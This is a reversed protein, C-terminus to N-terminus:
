GTFSMTNDPYTLHLKIDKGPQCGQKLLSDSVTKLALDPHNNQQSLHALFVQMQEKRPIRALVAAADHNSLHGYQGMIRQKLFGPYPGNKLMDRDHNSELVALDANALAKLVNETIVGMDTAIVWKKHRYHFSFGVPDAADHSISHAEVEVGGVQFEEEITICCEPPLKHRCPIAEWTAARAFVPLRYRRILVDLGKIHDIHEHTILVGDLDGAKVGILALKSEIRRTSIGADVLLRTDGFRFYAVNGTSGSALIHLQM